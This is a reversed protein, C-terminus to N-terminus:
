KFLVQFAKHVILYTSYLFPLGEIKRLVKWQYKVLKIKNSSLSNERVKYFTHPERLGYIFEAKKIVQLWMAFDNRRRIIPAYFKGLKKANYIITSNGPCYKLVGKYDLRDQVKITNIEEYNENIAIYETCTFSYDNSKMFFLQKTLKEAGWLDDSDLFAIYEGQAIEVGRNRAVAAGSNKELEILRIRDDEIARIVDVTNDSSCDDIIILEWNTFTQDLVTQISEKIYNEANYAPMIISVYDDLFDM